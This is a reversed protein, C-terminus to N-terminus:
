QELDLALINDYKKQHYANFDQIGGFAKIVSEKVLQTEQDTIFSNYSSWHWSEMTSVFGHHVPNSHIYLVVKRFYDESNIYKRKFNQQFLAGKREFMKNFSKTYSNFLNGFQQSIFSELTKFGRVDFIPGTANEGLTMLKCNPLKLLEEVSKIQVLLHFHNPMLCYCCTDAIPHIYYYYKHLFYRFNEDTRFLNESGNAHNYIHYYHSPQLM